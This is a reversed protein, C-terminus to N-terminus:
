RISWCPGSRRYSRPQPGHVPGRSGAVPFYDRKRNSNCAKCATCYNLPEYALWYYGRDDKPGTGFAYAPQASSPPWRLVRSKPRFHEVDHELRGVEEPPLLRECYACKNHQVAMYVPKIDGWDPGIKTYSRHQVLTATAASARARWTPSTVQIGVKLEDESIAYRIM